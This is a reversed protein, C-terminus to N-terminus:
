EREATPASITNNNQKQPQYHNQCINHRGIYVRMKSLDIGYENSLKLLLEYTKNSADGSYAPDKHTFRTDQKGLLYAMMGTAYDPDASAHARSFDHAWTALQIVKELWEKPSDPNDPCLHEICMNFIYDTFIRTLEIQQIARTYKETIQQAETDCGIFLKLKDKLLTMPKKTNGSMTTMALRGAILEPGDIKIRPAINKLKDSLDHMGFEQSLPICFYQIIVYLLNYRDYINIETPTNSQPLKSLEYKFKSIITQIHEPSIITSATPASHMSELQRIKTQMAAKEQEAAHLKATLEAIQAEYDITQKKNFIGM